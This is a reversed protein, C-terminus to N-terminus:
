IKENTAVTPVAALVTVPRPAKARLVIRSDENWLGPFPIAAKDYTEFIKDADVTAGQDNVRPLPDLVGTDNGFYLGNNHAQHLIFGIKDTRKMQTLATGAQAAYALKTSKWNATYPLGAVAHHRVPAALTITGDGTDVTFTTQVGAVDPSLDKGATAQGTDDAWIVVAKGALHTFGTMSSFAGTDNFSKACDALYSLGTDGLCEAETAWKELYRVSSNVTARTPATFNATWRAIGVSLRIEDLSGTWPNGSSARHAVYLDTSVNNVSGTFATSSGEQTGDIFLKLVNGTRVAAFHHWGTNSVSTFTTTGTVITVTTGDSLYFAIVDTSERRVVFALQSATTITAGSQGIIARTTGSAATCNFWGDITFDGSGLAFDAHDDTNIFDGTGDFLGGAGFKAVATDIQANGNASWTHASGGANSDVFETSADAGEFHLLVKTYSDNNGGITRRVHYYVADEGTGPLVMAKEVSGDTEWMSWCIVQEQPEYTLIGVKGNALVCHIRTDPQRQIAISVVGAELLDPALLTLEISGYGGLADAGEGFGAMFVRQGSRQVYIAKTDMKIARLNASGQTSFTRVSNNSPTVPEDLSSSRLEMEAGSTGVLLRLLGILYYINDVPGSGLTRYIPGADGETEDDFNEYDDSVSGHLNAGGAHYLRGGHLAPATPFRQETSWAGEQWSDTPGTDSFRSLVEVAVSTTSNFDTVRAIGNVGGHKYTMDVLAVGSTYASMRVRYWVIANDDPDSIVRTFTGTDTATTGGKIYGKSTSVPHFGSEEGEFSREIQLTGIYTGTVSISIRRESGQSPSGTDGTDSIGTMRIPDTHADLAGLPWLGSQNGHFLRFLSGRHGGHGAKFFPVDSNMTTNGYKQSVSLKATSSAAPLFPGRDPQYEVFSWSRGTGRREIKHPECGDADLYVVDASQDYRVDDLQDADIFTTVELTGSDGISMSGVIRDVLEGSQLTIYFNGEPTFSLNHYGTGLSTESIYDDNGDSSGVRLTVPGREIYIALSHETGTDSVVVTKKLRALAGISTANFVRRSGENRVQLAVSGTFMSIEAIVLETDGDVESFTLRWYRRAEVTGTDAGPLTYTRAESVAWGTESGQTDELTWKGTDVAFTGTDFNSCILQWKKPANDTYNAANGARISYTKIAKSNGSGFDVKWWSPLTSAEGSGTDTWFTADNDDAANWSFGGAAGSANSSSVSITVGNTPNGAMTPIVDSGITSLAGGTSANSWGTDSLSLTTDVKPRSLLVDDIWIRMRQHTLEILATDDTAAVFEIWEAGTDNLSSGLYKTGPRLTMAGQTKPLWNTMVAASLPMRDLDVRAISKPSVIGRNFGLLPINQKAM